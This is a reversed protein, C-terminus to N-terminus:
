VVAVLFVSFFFRSPLVLRCKKGIERYFIPFLLLSRPSSERMHTALFVQFHLPSPCGPKVFIEFTCWWVCGVARPNSCKALCAAQGAHGGLLAVFNWMKEKKTKKVLKVPQSFGSSKRFPLGKLIPLGLLDLSSTTFWVRPVATNEWTVTLEKLGWVYKRHVYVVSADLSCARNVNTKKKIAVDGPM